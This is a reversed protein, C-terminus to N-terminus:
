DEVHLLDLTKLICLVERRRKVTIGQAALQKEKEKEEMKKKYFEGNLAEWVREKIKLEQDPVLYGEL